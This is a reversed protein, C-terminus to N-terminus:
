RLSSGVTWGDSPGSQSGLPLRVKWTVVPPRGVRVEVEMGDIRHKGAGVTALWRLVRPTVSGISSTQIFADRGDLYVVM